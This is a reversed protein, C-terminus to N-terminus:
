PCAAGTPELQGLPTRQYRQGYTVNPNGGEANRWLFYSVSTQLCLGDASTLRAAEFGLGNARPENILFLRDVELNDPGRRWALEGNVALFLGALPLLMVLLWLGCGLACSRPTMNQNAPSTPQTM